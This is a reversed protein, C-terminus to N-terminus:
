YDRDHWAQTADRAGGWSRDSGVPFEDVDLREPLVAGERVRGDAGRFVIGPVSAPEEGRGLAEALGVLSREAEGRLIVDVEGHDRLIEVAALSAWHGGSSCVPSEGTTSTSSWLM